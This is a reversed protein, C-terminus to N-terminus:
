GCTKEIYALWKTRTEPSMAHELRCADQDAQTASVGLTESLFRRLLHHCHQIDRALAEGEMTLQIRGYLTHEVLGQQALHQMAKSVAARSLGLREAIDVSRIAEGQESLDLIAEVYDEIAPSFQRPLDLDAPKM